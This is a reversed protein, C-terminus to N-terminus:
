MIQLVEVGWIQLVEFTDGIQLTMEALVQGARQGRTVGLAACQLYQTHTPVIKGRALDANGTLYACYSPKVVHLSNSQGSQMIVALEGSNITAM